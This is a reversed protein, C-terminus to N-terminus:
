PSSEPEGNEKRGGAYQGLVRAVNLPISWLFRRRSYLDRAHHVWHRYDAEVHARIAPLVYRAGPVMRYGFASRYFAAEERHRRYMARLSFDHSHYVVAEHVYAKAYGARLIAEAWLQDEGFRVDPYPFREWVARRLAANNDSFFHLVQRYTEDSAYRGPDDIRMVPPASTRLREFHDFLERRSTLCADPWAVQRGVAGAVAADARLPALLATLWGRDVPQADQTLVAIMAGAGRAIALNRTRGHGFAAADIAHFTVRRDAAATTKVFEATGDTSGSDVAVVELMGDFAQELVSTLVSRFRAGGNRTPIIVSVDVGSM